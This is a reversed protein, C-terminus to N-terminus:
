NKYKIVGTNKISLQLIFKGTMNVVFNYQITGYRVTGYRVTGYRVTGYRVTGYRVTGYRVTGYRVRYNSSAFLLCCVVSGTM